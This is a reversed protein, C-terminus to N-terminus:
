RQDVYGLSVTISCRPVVASWEAMWGESNGAAKQERIVPLPRSPHYRAAGAELSLSCSIITDTPHYIYSGLVGKEDVAMSDLFSRMGDSRRLYGPYRGTLLLTPSWKRIRNPATTKIRKGKICNVQKSPYIM